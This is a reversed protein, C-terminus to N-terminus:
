VDTIEYVNKGQAFYINGQKYEEICKPSFYSKQQQSYIYNKQIYDKLLNYISIIKKNSYYENPLYFRGERIIIMGMTKKINYNPSDSLYFRAETVQTTDIPYPVVYEIPSNTSNITKPMHKDNISVIYENIMKEAQNLISGVSDFVNLQHQSLFILMDYIDSEIQFFRIQKGM